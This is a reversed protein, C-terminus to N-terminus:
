KSFLGSNKQESEIENLVTVVRQMAKELRQKMQPFYPNYYLMDHFLQDTDKVALAAVETIDNFSRTKLVINPIDM